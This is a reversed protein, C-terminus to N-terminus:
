IHYCILNHLLDYLWSMRNRNFLNVIIANKFSSRDAIQKYIIDLKPKNIYFM